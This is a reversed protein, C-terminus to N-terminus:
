RGTSACYDQKAGCKKLTECIANSSNKLPIKLQLGPAKLEANSGRVFANLIPGNLGIEDNFGLSGDYDAVMSNMSFIQDDIYLDLYSVDPEIKGKTAKIAKQATITFKEQGLLSIGLSKSPKSCSLILLVEEGSHNMTVSSSWGANGEGEEATTFGDYEWVGLTAASAPLAGLMATMSTVIIATRAAPAIKKFIKM